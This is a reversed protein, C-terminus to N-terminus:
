KIKKESYYALSFLKYLDFFLLNPKRGRLNKIFIKKTLLYLLKFVAKFFYFKEYIKWLRITQLLEIYALKELYHLNQIAILTKKLFADATELGLHFAPNDIHQIFKNRKALEFSFLTDEHGYETIKENFLIKDFLKKDICFNGTMFLRNKQKQRELVSIEERQKGYFWRLYQSKDLPKNDQYKIGGFLIAQASFSDLYNQIFNNSVPITDGDMFILCDNKANKALINRTKSRGYNKPNKLFQVKSLETIESNLLIYEQTSKDDLVIIESKPINIIQQHLKNVLQRIDYNFAPILISVM